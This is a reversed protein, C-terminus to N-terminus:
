ITKVKNKLCDSKNKENILEINIGDIAEIHSRWTDEFSKINRDTNIRNVNAAVENFVDAEGM